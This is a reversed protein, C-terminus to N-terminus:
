ESKFTENYYQEADENCGQNFEGKDYAEIIQQKHMEKAKDIIDTPILGIYDEVQDALWEVSSVKKNPEVFQNQNKDKMNNKQKKKFQKFWEKFSLKCEFGEPVNAKWCAMFSEAMDEESYSTEQQWKAGEIFDDYYRNYNDGAIYRGAADILAKNPESQNNIEDIFKKINEKKEDNFVEELKIEQRHLDITSVICTCDELSDSCDKCVLEIRNIEIDDYLGSEEDLKMMDILHQKQEQKDM